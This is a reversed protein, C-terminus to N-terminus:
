LILNMRLCCLMFYQLKTKSRSVPWMTMSPGQRFLGPLSVHNTSPIKKSVSCYHRFPDESWLSFTYRTETGMHTFYFLHSFFSRTIYDHWSTLVINDLCM